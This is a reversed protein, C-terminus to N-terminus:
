EWLLGKQYIETNSLEQIDIVENWFGINDIGDVWVRKAYKMIICNMKDDKNYGRIKLYNNFIRKATSIQTLNLKEVKDLNRLNNEYEEISDSDITFGFRSYWSNSAVVAPIGLCPYESGSTGSNTVICDMQDILDGNSVNLPLRIINEDFGIKDVAANVNPFLISHPHEKVYWNVNKIRKAIKITELLWQYHDRYLRGDGHRTADTFCHSYIVINKKGNDKLKYQQTKNELDSYVNIDSLANKKLTDIYKEVGDLTDNRKLAKQAEMRYYTDWSYMYECHPLEHIVNDSLVIIKAGMSAALEVVIGELYVCDWCLYYKPPNTKFQREAIHFIKVAEWIYFLDRGWNISEITPIANTRILYDYLTDGIKINNIKLMLFKDISKGNKIVYAIVWVLAYLSDMFNRITKGHVFIGKDIHYAKSVMSTFSSEQYYYPIIINGTNKSLGHAFIARGLNICECKQSILEGIYIAANNSPKSYISDVEDYIKKLCKKEEDEIFDKERTINKISKRLIRNIGFLLTSKIKM